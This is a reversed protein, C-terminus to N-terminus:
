NGRGDTKGIVRPPANVTSVEDGSPPFSEM